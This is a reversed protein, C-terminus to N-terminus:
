LPFTVAGNGNQDKIRIMGFNQAEQSDTCEGQELYHWSWAGQYGNDYVYQFMDGIDNRESCVSAFEGVVLPKDLGYSSGTVKFPADPNWYQNGQGDKNSYTHMQYFDLKGSNRNGAGTLCSDKYYNRSQAKSDTQAHESWSGVTVLCASNVQKIADAQWNVFKLINQMPVNTNAFGAGTDKLPTTDLCANSDYQNNLVLGEPENMIEWAALAPHNGLDTVMPKLANDIYTQLKSEDYLLNLAKEQPRVAGNWLVFVVMLNKSQAFDLFSRMDSIMTGTNDPGTVYGNSDFAPTNAGDVHLWMRVSNGGNADISTLWSELTSKSNAAYQGNGFDYGYSNWAINVGSLFVKQGNYYFDRGSVTLRGASLSVWCCLLLTALKFM